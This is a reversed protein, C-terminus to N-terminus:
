DLLLKETIMEQTRVLDAWDMLVRNRHGFSCQEFVSPNCHKRVSWELQQHDHYECGQHFCCTSHYPQASDEDGAATRLVSDPDVQKNVQM